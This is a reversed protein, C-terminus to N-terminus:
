RHLYYVLRPDPLRKPLFYRVGDRTVTLRSFTRRIWVRLRFMTRRVVDRMRLWGPAYVGGAMDVLSRDPVYMLAYM